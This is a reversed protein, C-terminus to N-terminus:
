LTRQLRPAAANGPPLRSSTLSHPLGHRPGVDETNLRYDGRCHQGAAHANDGLQLHQPQAQRKTSQHHTMWRRDDDLGFGLALTAPQRDDVLARLLRGVEHRDGVIEIPLHRPDRALLREDLADLRAQVRQVREGAFDIALQVLLDRAAALDLRELALDFPYPDVDGVRPLLQLADRHRCPKRARHPSRLTASPPSPPRASIPFMAALSRGGRWAPAHPDTVHLLLAALATVIITNRFMITNRRSPPKSRSHSGTSDKSLGFLLKRFWRLGLFVLLATLLFGLFRTWGALPNAIAAKGALTFVWKLLLLILELQSHLLVLVAHLIRRGIGALSLRQLLQLEVLREPTRHQILGPASRGWPRLALEGLADPATV